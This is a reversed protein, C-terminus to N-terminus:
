IISRLVVPFASIIEEISWKRKAHTKNISNVRTPGMQELKSITANRKRAEDVTNVETRYDIYKQFRLRFSTGPCLVASQQLEM